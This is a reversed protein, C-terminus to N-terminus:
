LTVTAEMGIDGIFQKSHTTKRMLLREDPPRGPVQTGTLEHSINRIEVTGSGDPAFRIDVTSPSESHIPQQQAHALSTLL